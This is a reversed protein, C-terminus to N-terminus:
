RRHGRHELDLDFTEQQTKGHHTRLVPLSYLRVPSTTQNQIPTAGVFVLGRHHTGQGM